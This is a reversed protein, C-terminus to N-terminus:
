FTLHNLCICGKIDTSTVLGTVDVSLTMTSLKQVKGRYFRDFPVQILVIYEILIKLFNISFVMYLPSTTVDHQWPLLNKPHCCISFMVKFLTRVAQDFKM